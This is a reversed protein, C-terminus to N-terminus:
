NSYKVYGVNLDNVILYSSFVKRESVLGPSIARNSEYMYSLGPQHPYSSWITRQMIEFYLQIVSCVFVIEKSKELNLWCKYYKWLDPFKKM